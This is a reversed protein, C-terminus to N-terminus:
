SMTTVYSTYWARNWANYLTSDMKNRAIIRHLYYLAWIM